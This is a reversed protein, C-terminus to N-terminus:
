KNIITEPNKKRRFIALAILSLLVLSSGGITILPSIGETKGSAFGTTSLTFKVQVPASQSNDINSVSYVTATHEGPELTAPPTLKFNQDAVITNTLVLSRWTVVISSDKNETLGEITVDNGEVKVAIEPTKVSAEGVNLEEPSSVSLTKNDKSTVATITYKGAGLEETSM